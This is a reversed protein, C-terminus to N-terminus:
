AKESSMQCRGGDINSSRRWYRCVVLMCDLTHLGSRVTVHSTQRCTSPEQYAPMQRLGPPMEWSDHGHMHMPVLNWDGRLACHAVQLAFFKSQQSQSLELIRDVRTWAEPHEQLKRLVSEAANRQLLAPCLLPISSPDECCGFCAALTNLTASAIPLGAAAARQLRGFQSGSSPWGWFAPLWAGGALVTHRLTKWAGAHACRRTPTRATSPACPPTWCRSTWPSSSTWCSRPPPRPSPWPANNCRPAGAPSVPRPPPPAPARPPTCLRHEWREPRLASRHPEPARAGYKVGGGGRSVDGRTGGGHRRRSPPRIHM